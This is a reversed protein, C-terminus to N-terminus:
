LICFNKISTFRCIKYNFFYNEHYFFVVIRFGCKLVFDASFFKFLLKFCISFLFCFFFKLRFFSVILKFVFFVIVFTLGYIFPFSFILFIKFLFFSLFFCFTGFMEFFPSILLYTSMKNINFSNLKHKILKFFQKELQSYSESFINISFSFILWTNKYLLKQIMKEKFPKNRENLKILDFFLRKRSIDYIKFIIQHFKFNIIQFKNNIFLYFIHLLYIKLHM